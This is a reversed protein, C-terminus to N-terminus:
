LCTVNKECLQGLVVGGHHIYVLSVSCDTAVGLLGSMIGITHQQWNTV